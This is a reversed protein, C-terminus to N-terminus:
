QVVSPRVRGDSVLVLKHFMYFIEFRPQHITLVVTRNSDALKNLHVLLEQSATADLGTCIGLTCTIEIEM